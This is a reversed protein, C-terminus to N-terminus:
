TDDELISCLFKKQCNKSCFNGSETQYRSPRGCVQCRFYESMCRKNCFKEKGVKWRIIVDSRKCNLCTGRGQFCAEWVIRIFLGLVVLMIVPVIM